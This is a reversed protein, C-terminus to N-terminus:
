VCPGIVETKIYWNTTNGPFGNQVQLLINSGSTTVTANLGTSNAPYFARTGLYVPGFVYNRPQVIGANLSIIDGIRGYGGAGPTGATTFAVSQIDIGYAGTNITIPITRYTVASSSTSGLVTDYYVNILGNNESITGNINLVNTTIDGDVQLSNVRLNAWPHSTTNSIEVLSM